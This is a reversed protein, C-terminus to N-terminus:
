PRSSVRWHKNNYQNKIQKIEEHGLYNDIAHYGWTGLQFITECAFSSCASRPALFGTVMNIHNCFYVDEYGLSANYPVKTLISYMVRPNRLSLGGNGGHSQFKWPAGIYDYPLFDEIGERLIMSDTQFILVRDYSLLKDWYYTSTMLTNYDRLSNVEAYYKKCQYKTFNNKNYKGHFVVLDWGPLFKLHADILDSINPM